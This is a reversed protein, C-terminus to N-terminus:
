TPEVPQNRLGSLFSERLELIAVGYRRSADLMHAQNYHKEGTRLSGHGLLTASIKMLGPQDIAVSTLLCDRFLHPWLATGFRKETYREIMGRLASERMPKGARDLWLRGQANKGPFKAAQRLLIPRRSRLFKELYPLLDDPVPEDIPGGTKTEEPRFTLWYRAGDWRLSTGITIAQFNRIRLPRAALLAIALGAQYRLAASVGSNRKSRRSASDMLQKGFRYLDLTHQIVPRKARSSTARLKLRASRRRLWSWDAQPALATAASALGGVYIAVSTSAVETKLMATFGALREPTLRAAVPESEALLGARHLWALYRGYADEYKRLTRESWSFAPNDRWDPGTGKRAQRWLAQDAAPWQAVPWIRRADPNSPQRPRAIRNVM